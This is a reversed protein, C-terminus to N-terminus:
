DDANECDVVFPLSAAVTMQEYGVRQSWRLEASICRTEFALELSRAQM